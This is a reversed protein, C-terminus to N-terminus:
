HVKIIKFDMNKIDPNPLHNIIVSENRLLQLRKIAQSRFAIPAESEFLFLNANPFNSRLSSIITDESEDQLEVQNFVLQANVDQVSLSITEPESVFYYKWTVSRSNFVLNYKPTTPVHENDLLVNGTQITVEAVLPFGQRLGSGNAVSSTLQTDGESLGANTFSFVEGEALGSMDTIFYFTNSTPFIHFTFLDDAQLEPLASDGEDVPIFVRIGNVMDKVIFRRGKLFSHTSPDPVIVLEVWEGPLFYEHDMEIRFFEKYRM